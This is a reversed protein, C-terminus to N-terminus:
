IFRSTATIYVGGHTFILPASHSCAVEDMYLPCAAKLKLIIKMEKNCYHLQHRVLRVAFILLIYRTEIPTLLATVVDGLEM